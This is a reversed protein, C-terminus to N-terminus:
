HSTSMKSIKGRQDVIVRITRPLSRGDATKSTTQFLLLSQSESYAKVKPRVGKAEPFKQYVQNCISDLMKQDM